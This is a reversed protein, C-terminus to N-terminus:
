TIRNGSDSFTTNIKLENEQTKPQQAQCYEKLFFLFFIIVEIHM